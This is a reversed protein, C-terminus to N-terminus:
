YFSSWITNCFSCLFYPASNEQTATQPHPNKNQKKSAALLGNQEGTVKGLREKDEADWKGPKWDWGWRGFMKSSRAANNAGTCGVGLPPTLCDGKWPSSLSVLCWEWPICNVGVGNDGNMSKAPKWLAAFVQKVQSSLWVFSMLAAASGPFCLKWRVM